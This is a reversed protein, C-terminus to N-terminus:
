SKDTFKRDLEGTVLSVPVRLKSLEPWLSPMRGLGLARMAWSIGHSTHSTRQKRLDARAAESITRQTDFIPLKEWATAFADLSETKARAAWGDDWTKREDRMAEDEIGADVGILVAASFKEPHRITLALALRAGMSYGVVLAPERFPIRASLADVASFFDSPEPPFLPNPGHGPLDLAATRSNGVLSQVREWMAPSGLFGHLFLIPARTM